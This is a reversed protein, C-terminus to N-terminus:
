DKGEEGTERGKLWPNKQLLGPSIYASTNGLAHPYLEIAVARAENREGRAQDREDSYKVVLRCIRTHEIKEAPTM